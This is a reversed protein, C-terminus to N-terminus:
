EDHYTTKQRDNGTKSLQFSDRIAAFRNVSDLYRGDTRLVTRANEDIGLDRLTVQKEPEDCIPRWGLGKNFEVRVKNANDVEVETWAVTVPRVWYTRGCYRVERMDPGQEDFIKHSGVFNGERDRSILFYDPVLITEAPAGTTMAALAALVLLPRQLGFSRAHISVPHRM